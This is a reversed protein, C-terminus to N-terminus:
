KSEGFMISEPRCDGLLATIEARVSLFLVSMRRLVGCGCASLLLFIARMRLIRNSMAFFYTFTLPHKQNACHDAAKLL